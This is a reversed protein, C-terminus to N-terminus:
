RDGRCVVALLEGNGAAEAARANTATVAAGAAADGDVAALYCGVAAFICGADAVACINSSGLAIDDNVATM